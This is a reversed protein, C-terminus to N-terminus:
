DDLGSRENRAPFPTINQRNSPELPTAPRDTRDEQCQDWQDLWIDRGPGRKHPCADRPLGLNFADTADFRIADDVADRTVPDLVNTIRAALNWAMVAVTTLHARDDPNHRMIWDMLEEWDKPTHFMEEPKIRPM